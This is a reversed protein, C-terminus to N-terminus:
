AVTHNGPLVAQTSVRLLKTYCVNYSTIRIRKQEDLPPLPMVLNGLVNSSLGQIGIGKGGIIDSNKYVYISYLFFLSNLEKYARLKHIHNQICISENFNWIASRGVDGGECVLLDGKVVSYKEIENDSFYMEKVSELNICNWYVNSTTLYKRKTGFTNAKNLAKGANHKFIEGLRVWEWSDPIDFPKEEDKIPLM